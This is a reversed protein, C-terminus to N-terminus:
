LNKGLWDLIVSELDTGSFMEVGHGADQYRKFQANAGSRSLKQSSSFSYDDETSAVILASGEYNEMSKEISVGRYNTGPSLMVVAKVGYDTSAYKMAVNAGLSAGIVVLESTDAGRSELFKRADKVDVVMGNFDKESFDKWTVTKGKRTTSQGHGRMDISLVLYGSRNLGVAFDNWIRRTTSLQPLLIVPKGPGRYLTGFIEWGDETEFSIQENEM